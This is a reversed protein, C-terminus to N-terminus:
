EARASDANAAECMAALADTWSDFEGYVCGSTIRQLGFKGNAKTVINM